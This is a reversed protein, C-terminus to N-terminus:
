AEQKWPDLPADAFAAETNSFASALQAASGDAMVAFIRIPVEKTAEVGATPISM